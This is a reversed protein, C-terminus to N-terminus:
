QRAVFAEFCHSCLWGGNSRICPDDGSLTVNCVICHGHSVPNDWNTKVWDYKKAEAVSDEFYCREIRSGNVIVWEAM